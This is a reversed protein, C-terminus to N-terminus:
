LWAGDIRSCVRRVMEVNLRENEYGGPDFRVKLKNNKDLRVDVM